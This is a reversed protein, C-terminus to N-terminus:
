DLIMLGTSVIKMLEERDQTIKSIVKLGAQLTFLYASIEKLDKYPSIQNEDVGYKLYDHYINEFVEKNESLKKSLHEDDSLESTTNVIFCGNPKGEDLVEEVSLEFLLHIGERVNVHRQLFEHVKQANQDKYRDITLDFQARKSGFTDYISARNIGLTDVLDQMSTAHFGNKWFLNIAKELVEEQDFQKVRPM